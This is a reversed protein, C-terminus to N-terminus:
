QQIEQITICNIVSRVGPVGEIEDEIQEAAAVSAVAGLLRVCGNHIETRIGEFPVASCGQLRLMVNRSLDHDSVPILLATANDIGDNVDAVCEIHHLVDIATTSALADPIGAATDIAPNFSIPGPSGTMDDVPITTDDRVAIM